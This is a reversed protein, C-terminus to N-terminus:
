ATAYGGFDSAAGAEAGMRVREGAGRRPPLAHLMAEVDGMAVSAGTGTEALLEPIGGGGAFAVVGLGATLAELVVSPYPAEASTLLFADAASLWPAIDAQRGPLLFSGEARAAAIEPGLYAAVTPDLEGLWCFVADLGLRRAARWGQLFLD